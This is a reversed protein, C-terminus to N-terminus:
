PPLATFGESWGPSTGFRVFSCTCCLARAVGGARGRTSLLLWLAFQHLSRAYACQSLAVSRLGASADTCVPVFKGEPVGVGWWTHAVTRM